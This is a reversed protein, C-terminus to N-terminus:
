FLQATFKKRHGATRPDNVGMTELITLYSTRADEDLKVKPLLLALQEDFDDTPAFAQKAEDILLQIQPTVPVSTLLALAAPIDSRSILLKALAAVVLENTPELTFAARLSTEDGLALLSEVSVLEEGPILGRVFEEIVHEPYAGVFGDLVAGDKMAYVAPISQAKFAAAIAPNQDVNVKALVVKGNAAKTLKELIPGITKCPECWPAWLDVLVPVTASRDLVEAQFSADSVDLIMPLVSGGLTRGLGM